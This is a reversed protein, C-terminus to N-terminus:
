KLGGDAKWIFHFFGVKNFFLIPCAFYINSMKKIRVPIGRPLMSMIILLLLLFRFANNDFRCLLNKYEQVSFLYAGSLAFKAGGGFSSPVVATLEEKVKKENKKAFIVAYVDRLNTKSGSTADSFSNGSNLLDNVIKIPLNINSYIRSLSSGLQMVNKDVSIGPKYFASLNASNLFLSFVVVVVIKFISTKKFVRFHHNLHKTKM